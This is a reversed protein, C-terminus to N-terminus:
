CCRPSAKSTVHNGRVQIHVRLLPRSIFGESEMKRFCKKLLDYQNGRLQYFKEYRRRVSEEDLASMNHDDDGDDSSREDEDEEDDFLTEYYTDTHSQGNPFFTTVVTTKEWSHNQENRKLKILTRVENDGDRSWTIEESGSEQVEYEEDDDDDDDAQAKGDESSRLDPQQDGVFIEEDKLSCNSDFYTVTNTHCAAGTTTTTTTTTIREDRLMDDDDQEDQCYFEALSALDQLSYYFYDQASLWRVPRLDPLSLFYASRKVRVVNKEFLKRLHSVTDVVDGQDGENEEEDIYEEDENESNESYEDDEDDLLLSRCSSNSTSSLDHNEVTESNEILYISPSCHELFFQEDDVRESSFFNFNALKLISSSSSVEDVAAVVSGTGGAVTGAVNIEHNALTIWPQLSTTGAKTEGNEEEEEEDEEKEASPVKADKKLSFREFRAM